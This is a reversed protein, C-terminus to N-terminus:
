LLTKFNNQFSVLIICKQANKEFFDKFFKEFIEWVIPNKRWRAFISRLTKLKKSFRRFYDMKQFKRSFNKSFKWFKRADPPSRGWSYSFHIIITRIKKEITAFIREFYTPRYLYNGIGRCSCPLYISSEEQCPILIMTLLM